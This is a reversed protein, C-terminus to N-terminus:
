VGRAAHDDIMAHLADRTAVPLVGVAAHNVYVLGPALAFAERALPAANAAADRAAPPAGRTAAHLDTM